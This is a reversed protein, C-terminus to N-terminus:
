GLTINFKKSLYREVAVREETLLARKFIIIEAFDGQAYNQSPYGGIYLSEGTTTSNNGSNDTNSSGAAGNIWIQMAGNKARRASIINLSNAQTATTANASVSGDSYTLYHLNNAIAIRYPSPTFGKSVIVQLASDLSSSWVVFITVNESDSDFGNAAVLVDDIGDFRLSPIAGSFVNEYFKPQSSSTSQLANSRNVAQPNNDYWTSINGGDFAEDKIFSSELSTEYWLALDPIENVASNKTIVQASSLRSKKVMLRGEMIGAILIGIVLIVVSLEVLSFASHKRM